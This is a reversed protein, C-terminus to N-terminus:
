KVESEIQRLLSNFCDSIANFVNKNESTATFIKGGAFIEARIEHIFLDSRKHIKLNLKIEDYSHLIKEIRNIYHGAIKKVISLESKDLQNFNVLKIDKNKGWVIEDM